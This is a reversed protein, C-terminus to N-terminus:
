RRTSLYSFYKQIIAIQEKSLDQSQTAVRENWLELFNDLIDKYYTQGDIIQVAEIGHNYPIRESQIDASADGNQSDESSEGSADFPTYYEIINYMLIPFEALIVLNSYHLSFSLVVVNLPTTSKESAIAVLYEDFHLLSTYPTVSSSFKIETFRTVTVDETVNNVVPHNEESISLNLEHNNVYTQGLSFNEGQPVSRPDIMICLGESPMVDPLYGEYIYVDYGSNPIENNSEPEYTFGELTVNAGSQQEDCFADLFSVMFVNPMNSSYLIRLDHPVDPKSTSDDTGAPDKEDEQTNDTEPATDPNANHDGENDDFSHDASPNCATTFLLGFLMAFILFFALIRRKM